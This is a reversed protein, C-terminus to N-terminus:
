CVSLKSCFEFKGSNVQFVILELLINGGNAKTETPQLKPSM